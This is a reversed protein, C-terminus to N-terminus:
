DWGRHMARCVGKVFWACPDRVESVGFIIDEVFSSSGKRWTWCYTWGDAPMSWVSVGLWLRGRAAITWAAGIRM